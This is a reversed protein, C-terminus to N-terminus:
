YKSPAQNTLIELIIENIEKMKSKANMLQVNGEKLSELDVKLSRVNEMMESQIEVNRKSELEVYLRANRSTLTRGHQTIFGGNNDDRQTSGTNTKTVKLVDM